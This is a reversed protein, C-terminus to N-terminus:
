KINQITNLYDVADSALSDMQAKIEETDGNKNILSLINLKFSENKGLAINKTAEDEAMSIIKATLRTIKGIHEAGYARLVDTQPNNKPIASPTFKITKPENPQEIPPEAKSTSDQATSETPVPAEQIEVEAEVEQEAEAVDNVASTLTNQAHAEQTDVGASNTNKLDQILRENEATLKENQETLEAVKSSLLQNQKNLQEIVSNLDELKIHQAEIEGAKREIEAFLSSNQLILQKKRM